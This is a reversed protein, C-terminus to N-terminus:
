VFLHIMTIYANFMQRQSVKFEMIVRANNEKTSISTTGPRIWCGIVYKLPGQSSKM